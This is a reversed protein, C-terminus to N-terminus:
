YRSLQGISAEGPSQMGVARWQVNGIGAQEAESQSTRKIRDHKHRPIHGIGADCSAWHWAQAADIQDLRIIFSKQNGHLTYDITFLKSM